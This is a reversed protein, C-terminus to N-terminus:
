HHTVFDVLAVLGGGVIFNMISLAVLKWNQVIVSDVKLGLVAVEKQFAERTEKNLDYILKVTNSLEANMSFIMARLESIRSEFETRQINDDGM